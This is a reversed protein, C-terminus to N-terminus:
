ARVFQMTWNTEWTTGGDPSFAQEWRPSSTHTDLWLFRVKIPKGDFVDEALFVGVGNRFGGKVPVELGHPNRADLWWIAWQESQPDYSRLTVARYQGAPLEILNDDVNGQGGMLNWARSRGNFEQWENSGALRSVLRRHRVRWEGIFFDFDAPVTM